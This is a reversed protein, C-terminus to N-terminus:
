NRPRGPRRIDSLFALDFGDGQARRVAAPLDLRRQLKTEAIVRVSMALRGAIIVAAPPVAGAVLGFIRPDTMIVLVPGEDNGSRIDNGADVLVALHHVDRGDPIFDQDRAPGTPVCFGLPIILM